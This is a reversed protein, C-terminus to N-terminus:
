FNQNKNASKGENVEGLEETSEEEMSTQIVNIQNISKISIERLDKKCVFSLGFFTFLKELNSFSKYQTTSWNTTVDFFHFPIMFNIKTCKLYERIDVQGEPLEIAFWDIINIGKVIAVLDNLVFSMKDNISSM